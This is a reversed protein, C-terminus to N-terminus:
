HREVQTGEESIVAVDIPGGIGTPPPVIKASQRAANILSIAAAKAEPLSFASVTPRSKTAISNLFSPALYQAGLRYVYKELYETEGFNLEDIRDLQSFERWFFKTAQPAGKDTVRIVFAGVLSKKMSGEYDVFALQFM